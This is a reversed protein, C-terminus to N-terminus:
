QFYKVGNRFLQMNPSETPLEKGARVYEQKMVTWNPYNTIHAAREPHPMMGFFRGSEDTIAAVDDMSGNPNAELNQYECIDGKFYTAAILNKSKLEKLAEENTIFNGEAHAVPMSLTDIGDIWPSSGSFKLDVWRNIYRASKNHTLAVQQEGYENELAPILGLTTMIQFGNCISLALTDREIFEKLSEWLHNKVRNAYAKGAGTDDGYSFGGPFVVIQYNDLSHKKDILDNIHVIDAEAGAQDFVYKTERECNIGYGSFLLAKPKAM